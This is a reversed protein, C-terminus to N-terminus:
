GIPPYKVLLSFKTNIELSIAAGQKQALLSLNALGGEFQVEHAPVSGDNCFRCIVAQPTQEISIEMNKAQAHKVANAIAERAASFFLSRQNEDFAPPLEGRWTLHVGLMEALADISDTQQQRRESDAEMCLLLANQEWLSFIHNLAETDEKDVAVTSLMLRNMEDHINMKAQLIERRHVSEDISAYYEWLERNLRSLETKDKELACTKAYEGSIDSAIMEYLHEGDVYMDRTAFRWVTEGLIQIDEAVAERLHNGNLLTQGTLAICLENMCINSFLVQGNERWCCIGCPIKDLYVKVTGPTIYRKDYRINYGLLLVTALTFLIFAILWYAWAFNSLTFTIARAQATGGFLLYDFIMQWLVYVPIFLLAAVVTFRYRKRVTALVGSGLNVLCLLLAWLAFVAHAGAPLMHFATM